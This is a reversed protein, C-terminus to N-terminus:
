SLVSSSRPGGDSSSNKNQKRWGLNLGLSSPTTSFYSPTHRSPFVRDRIRPSVVAANPRDLIKGVRSLFSRERHGSSRTPRRDRCELTAKRAGGERRTGRGRAGVGAVVMHDARAVVAAERPFLLSNKGLSAPCASTAVDSKPHTPKRTFSGLLREESTIEHRDTVGRIYSV